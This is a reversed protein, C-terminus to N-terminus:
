EANEIIVPKTKPQEVLVIEPDDWNGKITYKLEVSKDIETKFLKQVLLLGWGVPAGLAIGGIVPLTQRIQPIIVMEQDYTQSRLGTNGTIFVRASPSDMRTNDTYLNEGTIKYAGSIRDFEMGRKVVDGFGLLLRRPLANLSLLGILRGSGPEVDKLAGDDITLRADGTLSDWDFNFLSDAWNLDGNLKITGGSIADGFGIAAMAEGFRSGEISYDLKSTHANTVPDYQWAGAGHLTVKDRQLGLKNILLTNDALRTELQMNEFQNEDYFFAKSTLSLNYFDGPNRKASPEAPEITELRVLEMDAVIPNQASQQKPIVFKGSIHSSKIEGSFAQAQQALNFAVDTWQRGQVVASRAKVDVSQILHWGSESSDNNVSKDNHGIKNDYWELWDDASLKALTGYLRVGRTADDSRLATSLAIDMSKLQYDSSDDAAFGGSLLLDPGYRADFDIMNNPYISVAVSTQRSSGATKAFPEPINVATNELNSQANIRLLPERSDTQLNDILLQVQWDSEGSVGSSIYEPLLRMLQRTSVRGKCQIVTKKNINDTDVGVMIPDDFYNATINGGSIGGKSIQLDGYINRLDAGWAPAGFAANNFALDVDVENDAVEAGLPMVIAAEAQVMGDVNTFNKAVQRFSKAIPMALWTSLAASTTASAALNLDITLAALDAIAVQGRLQDIRGFSASAIDAMMSVNHFSVVGQAQRLSDWQPHFMLSANNVKFDVFFEASKEESSKRLHQLPGYYLLNGESVDAAKIGADLWSTAGAPLLKVPLYKWVSAGVGQDFSARLYLKPIDAQDFDLLLRGSLKIDSNSVVVSPVSIRLGSDDFSANAQLHYREIEIPSRFQDLFDLTLDEGSLELQFNNGGAIISGSLHNIAPVTSFPQSVMNNVDASLSLDHLNDPDVSFWIDQLRGAPQSLKIKQAIDGTLISDDLATLASLDFERVWGSLTKMDEERTLSLQTDFGPLAVSNLLLNKCQGVIRWDQGVRSVNFRADFSFPATLSTQSSQYQGNEVSLDAQLLPPKGGGFNLWLDGSLQAQQLGGIDTDFLKALQPNLRSIKAYVISKAKSFTAQFGVQGGLKQLDADLRAYVEARKRQTNLRINSVKYQQNNFEDDITIQKIDIHVYKPILGIISEIDFDPKDGSIGPGGLAIDSLWWQRNKDKRLHLTEIVADIENLVLSQSLLSRRLSVEVKLQELSVSKAQNPLKLTAGRILILHNFQSGKLEIGSFSLGPLVSQRLLNEIDAKFYDIHAFGIRLAGIVVAALILMWYLLKSVARILIQM